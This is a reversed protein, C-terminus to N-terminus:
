PFGDQKPWMDPCLWPLTHHELGKCIINVHQSELTLEHCKEGFMPLLCIHLDLMDTQERSVHLVASIPLQGLKMETAITLYESLFCCLPSYLKSLECNRTVTM